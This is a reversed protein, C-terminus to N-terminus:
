SCDGFTCLAGILINLALTWTTIQIKEVETEEDVANLFISSALTVEGNEKRFEFSVLRWVGVLSTQM